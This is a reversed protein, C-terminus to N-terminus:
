EQEAAPKEIDALRLLEQTISGRPEFWDGFDRAIAAAEMLAEKRAQARDTDVFRTAIPVAKEMLIGGHALCTAEIELLLELADRRAITTRREPRV